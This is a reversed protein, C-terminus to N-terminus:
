RADLFEELARDLPPFPDLGAEDAYLSVLASSRPRPAPLGLEAATQREPEGPFGGAGKLRGLVDFWTAAEPGVLHYTGFRETLVLPVIREALHRVFTPTGVRDALGGVSEGKALRAAAGSLFDAGGGFVYGTRVVFSERLLERAFREGALKSRAYVSMPNPEDSEDYPEPKEGDFVYDTSVTLLVAGTRQAALALNQVGIANARYATRGDTQCADVDTFAAFNLIVDSKLPVLTRVVAHYDGVDMREHDFAEIDHHGPAVALFARGLGGGAGAVALRM